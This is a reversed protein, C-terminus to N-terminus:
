RRGGLTYLGINRNASSPRRGRQPQYSGPTHISAVQKETGMLHRCAHVLADLRNPSSHKSADLPDWYIMEKELKEFEGIHHIGGQEYRMAVPEARLVKGYLSHEPKLPATTNAPFVGRKQLERYADALVDAMWRKGLNNEYVVFDCKYQGFVNWIHLAAERGALPVSEDAVVYIHNRRDRSVVIVGMEDSPGSTLAQEGSSLLSPDVGVVRAMVNVPGMNLRNAQIDSWKFLSGELLDLLEGYLEQRGITTGEYRKRMEELMVPSLNDANDFTSGRVISVSDDDREVWERILTIPKPTTTVFVRPHDELLDARMSPAIGEIWSRRPDRWKAIEDLWGGAANYGRGVDPSDAGEFYIKTGEPQITITPKPSRVLRYEIEKRELVRLIGSPGELCIRRSDSTTEAIVLWETPFGHRDLPHRITQEVLWESGARSKGFGRGALVMHIFWIGAPPIQEPRATYWWEGRAMEAIMDDSLSQLWKQVTEEPLQALQRALSLGMYPITYTL